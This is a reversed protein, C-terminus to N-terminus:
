SHGRYPVNQFLRTEVKKTNGEKDLEESKRLTLFRYSAEHNQEERQEATALALEIITDASPLGNNEPTQSSGPTTSSGATQHALVLSM